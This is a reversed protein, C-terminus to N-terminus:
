VMAEAAPLGGRHDKITDNISRVAQDAAWDAEDRIMQKDELYSVLCMLDSPPLDVTVTIGHRISVKVTQNNLYRSWLKPHDKKMSSHLLMDAASGPITVRL